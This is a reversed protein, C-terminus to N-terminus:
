VVKDNRTEREQGTKAKGEMTEKECVGLSMGPSVQIGNRKKKNTEKERIITKRRRETCGRTGRMICEVKKRNRERKWERQVGMERVSGSVQRSYSINREKEEQKGRM